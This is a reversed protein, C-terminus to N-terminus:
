EVSAGFLSGEPIPILRYWCVRTGDPQVETRYQEVTEGFDRLMIRLASVDTGPAVSHAVAALEASTAGADGRRRLLMHMAHHRGGVRYTGAHLPM